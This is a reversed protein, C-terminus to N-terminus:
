FIGVGAGWCVPVGADLGIGSGGDRVGVGVRQRRM